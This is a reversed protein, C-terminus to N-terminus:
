VNYRLPYKEPNLFYDKELDFDLLPWHLNGAFDSNVTSIELPTAKEFEPFSSYAMFFEKESILLWIGFPSINTVTVNSNSTNMGNPM